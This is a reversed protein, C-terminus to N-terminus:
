PATSYASRTVIGALIELAPSLEDPLAESGGRVTRGGYTLVEQIADPFGDAGYDSRLRGFDVRELAGRLELLTRRPLTIRKPARLRPAYVTARGSRSVVLRDSFGAIGGFRQYVVLVDPRPREMPVEGEGARCGGGVLLVAAVALARPLHWGSRSSPGGGIAGAACRPGLARGAPAWRRADVDPLAQDLALPRRM